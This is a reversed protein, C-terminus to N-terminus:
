VTLTSLDGRVCASLKQNVPGNKHKRRSEGLWWLFVGLPIKVTTGTFSTFFM